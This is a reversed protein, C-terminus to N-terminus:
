SNIIQSCGTITRVKIEGLTAMIQRGLNWSFKIELITALGKKSKRMKNFIISAALIAENM